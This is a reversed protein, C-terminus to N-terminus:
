WICLEAVERPLTKLLLGSIMKHDSEGLRVSGGPHKIEKANHRVVDACTYLQREVPVKVRLQFSDAPVNVAKPPGHTPAIVALVLVAPRAQSRVPLVKPPGEVTAAVVSPAVQRATPM